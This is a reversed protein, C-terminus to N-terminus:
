TRPDCLTQHGHIFLIPSFSYGVSIPLCTLIDWVECFSRNWHVVAAYCVDVSLSKFCWYNNIKIVFDAKQPFWSTVTMMWFLTAYEPKEIVWKMVLPITPNKYHVWLSFLMLLSQAMLPVGVWCKDCVKSKQIWM